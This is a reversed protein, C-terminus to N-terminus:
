VNGRDDHGAKLRADVPRCLTQRCNTSPRTLGPWRRIARYAGDSDSCKGKASNLSDTYAIAAFRSASMSRAMPPSFLQRFTEDCAASVNLNFMAVAGTGASSSSGTTAYKLGCRTIKNPDRARPTARGSLSM